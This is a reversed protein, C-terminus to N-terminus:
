DLMERVVDLAKDLAAPIGAPNAGGAQAMDPRGGGRGEVLPAIAQIVKGAHVRKGAIDKSAAALLQVKSGRDAALVVVSSGLQDRLRDAQERLDGQYAVALVKVGDVDQAQGLLDGAAAKAAEAKMQQVERELDRREKQLRAITDVLRDPQTKLAQAADSLRDQEQRIVALAGTGTQAEIRRVGAAIGSESVVRFVGIDGTAHCHTGGCLEVSYGPISVVRVEDDYKEGFLAMAGAAVAADRDTLETSLATNRRIEANVEDEIIRIEKGTMPKHHSFDFRLRDPAVLSGKQTVHEGLVKRLAAHLLHTGTHNRRTADRQGADVTLQVADGVAIGETGLILM